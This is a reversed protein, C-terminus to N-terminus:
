LRKPTSAWLLSRGDNPFNISLRSLEQRYKLEHTGIKYHLIWTKTDWDQPGSIPISFPIPLDTIAYPRYASNIYDSEADIEMNRNELLNRDRITGVEPPGGPNM